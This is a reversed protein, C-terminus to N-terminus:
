VMRTSSHVTDKDVDGPTDGLEVHARSVSMIGHDMMLLSIEGPHQWNMWVMVVLMPVSDFVYLFVEKSQLYGDYGQAYEVLRFLSRVVIMASVLYLTSLYRQWRIEPHTLVITTPVRRMRMQFFGAVVVFFVFWTLQLVVGALIM